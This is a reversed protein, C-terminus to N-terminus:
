TSRILRLIKVAKCEIKALEERVLSMFSRLNEDHSLNMDNINDTKVEPGKHLHRPFTEIELHDPATNIGLFRRIEKGIFLIIQIL